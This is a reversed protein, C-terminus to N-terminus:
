LTIAIGKYFDLVKNSSLLNYKAQILTSEATLYKTHEQTFDSSNMLGIGFKEVAVDYAEKTAQYSELAAEYNKQAADVNVCAQEISKRLTNRTNQETLSATEVELKAIRVATKVQNQQFIPVSLTLAIEPVLRNAMQYGYSTTSATYYYSSNLSSSYSTSLSGSLSLTPYWDGKAVKVALNAIDKNLAASKVEPKIGLATQYVSEATPTIKSYTFNTLDPYVIDFAGDAPLELLQMLTIRNIEYSSEASALTYKDDALQAKVTLYDARSLLGTKMREEALKLQEDASKVEERSTNVLEKAYILNIYADLVSLTTAEKTTAADYKSAEYTLKAKKVNNNIKGGNYLTLTSSLSASTGNESKYNGYKNTSADLSKTWEFAQSVSATVTPLRLGKKQTVYQRNVDATVGAKRVDINKELAYAICKDLTWATSATAQAAVGISIASFLAVISIRISYNMVTQQRNKIFCLYTFFM